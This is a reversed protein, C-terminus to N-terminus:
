AGFMWPMFYRWSFVLHRSTKRLLATELSIKLNFNENVNLIFDQFVLYPPLFFKNHAFVAVSAQLM